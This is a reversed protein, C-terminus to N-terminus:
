AFLCPSPVYRAMLMSQVASGNRGVRMVISFAVRRGVGNGYSPAKCRLLSSKRCDSKGEMLHVEPRDALAM